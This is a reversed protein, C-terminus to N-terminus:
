LIVDPFYTCLPVFNLNVPMEKSSNSMNLMLKIFYCIFINIIIYKENQMNAGIVFITKLHVPTKEYVGLRPAFPCLFEAQEKLPPQFCNLSTRKLRQKGTDAM